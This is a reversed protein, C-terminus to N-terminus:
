KGVKNSLTPKTLSTFHQTHEGWPLNMCMCCSFNMERYGRCGQVHRERGGRSWKPPSDNRIFGWRILVGELNRQVGHSVSCHTELRMTDERM